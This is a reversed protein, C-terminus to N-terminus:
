LICRPEGLCEFLFKKDCERINCNIEDDGNPCHIIGDCINEVSVCYSWKCKYYNERCFDDGKLAITINQSSNFCFINIM